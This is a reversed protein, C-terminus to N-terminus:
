PCLALTMLYDGAEDKWQKEVSLNAVELEGAIGAETFKASIETLIEEGASFSVCMKLKALFAEQKCSSKLRMEIWNQQDNYIAEHSFKSLDFDAELENNLVQLINLNFDATIGQADNYAYLLRNKDKVLDTGLLFHDGSDMSNSIDTLFEKREEPRFNGITGGLFVILRRGEHPIKELHHHFDGVVGHAEINPHAEQVADLSAVVASECVDFPVFRQCHGIGTMAQLLVMTKESNGSGLEVLTDAQTIEAIESAHTDLIKQETNTLYYEPLAMIQEFLQSGREDYFWKAPLEKAEKGFGERVDKELERQQFGSDIYTDIKHITTTTM